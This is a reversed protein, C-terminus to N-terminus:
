LSLSKVADLISEPSRCIFDPSAAKIEEQNGYGYTVGITHSYNVKGAIIDESRDGVMVSKDPDAKTEKMVFALLDKKDDFRGDLEPGFVRTFKDGLKFHIIIKEVFIHPKSSVVYLAHSDTQLSSLLEPIGSYLRNEFIGTSAFRERYLEMAQEIRVKEKTKLLHEFTSRLPPGIYKVLESTDPCVRGLKLLAYQLSDTIGEQPDTLTGDLDFFINLRHSV